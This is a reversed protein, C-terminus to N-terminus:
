PSTTNIREIPSRRGGEASRTDGDDDGLARKVTDHLLRNGLESFHVDGAIYYKRLVTDPPERFFPAFGDIFRVHRAAAWDRWHTVQISDRDGEVVNDPWPYVVLTLRCQWKRCLDVIHDLNAGAVELGRRGWSELLAPDVTWRARPKGVSRAFHLSATLYFDDVLRGTMFNNVLFTGLDFPPTAQGDADIKIVAAGARVVRDGDVRYVNADDDIDSLDLFVFIESPTVGLREAAARIKLHYIAPSYSAVGLNWVAKGQRAADCAMLGAFSEEYTSGLAETFSDGIVFINERDKEPERPACEGTRFGFRDTQWPYVANGWVRTSSENPALDHDYLAPLYARDNGESPKSLARKLDPFMVNMATFDLALTIAAIIVVEGAVRLVRKM